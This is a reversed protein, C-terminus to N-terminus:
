SWKADIGMGFLAFDYKAPDTPDFQRLQNTLEIVTKWDTQPRQILGLQRAINDVHVDLPLLLQAPSLQKWLGFDVGQQDTRVMWRLFMNLRKCTSNRDPTSVHKRTRHPADPSDFFLHHFGALAARVNADTPLLHQAFATELSDHQSYYRRFFDIFYLTDTANFTRHKFDLLRRLDSPTHQLVFQYPANDMRQLLQNAKAIITKRLGWSLMAVWFGSIEIDQLRSFQHPISIPDNTIFHAQNFQQVKADLLAQLAPLHASMTIM